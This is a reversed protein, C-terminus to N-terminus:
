FLALFLVTVLNSFLPLLIMSNGLSFCATIPREQSPMGSELHWCLCSGAELVWQSCMWAAQRNGPKDPLYVAEGQWQCHSDKARRPGRLCEACGSHRVHSGRQFAPRHFHIHEPLFLSFLPFERTM